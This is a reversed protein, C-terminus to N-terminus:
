KTANMEEDSVHPCCYYPSQKWPSNTPAFSTIFTGAVYYSSLLRKPKLEASM